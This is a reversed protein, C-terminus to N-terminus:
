RQSQRFSPGSAVLKYSHYAIPIAYSKAHSATVCRPSGASRHRPSLALLPGQKRFRDLASAVVITITILISIARRRLLDAVIKQWIANM